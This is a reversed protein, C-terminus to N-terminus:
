TFNKTHIYTKTKKPYIGLLPIAPHYPLFINLKAPLWWIRKLYNYSKTNGSPTFSLAQQEMDNDINPMM